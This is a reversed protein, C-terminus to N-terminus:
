QNCLRSLQRKITTDAHKLTSFGLSMQCSNRSKQLLMRPHRFEFPRQQIRDGYDQINTSYAASITTHKYYAISSAKFVIQQHHLKISLLIICLHNRSTSSSISMLQISACMLLSGNFLNSSIVILFKFM